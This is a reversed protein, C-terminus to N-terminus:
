KYDEDKNRDESSSSRIHILIDEHCQFVCSLNEKVSSLGSYKFSGSIFRICVYLATNNVYTVNQTEFFINLLTVTFQLIHYIWRSFFTNFMFWNGFRRLLRINYGLTINLCSTFLQEWINEIINYTSVIVFTYDDPLM